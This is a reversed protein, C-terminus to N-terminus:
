AEILMQAPQTGTPLTIKGDATEYIKGSFIEKYKGAKPLVM